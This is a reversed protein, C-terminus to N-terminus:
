GMHALSKRFRVLAALASLFNKENFALNEQALGMLADALESAPRGYVTADYGAEALAAKAARVDDEAIDAFMSELEDLSPELIFLGKVLMAAACVFPAPMSDIVEINIRNTLTVDNFFSALASEAQDPTMAQEAYAAGFSEDTAIWDADGDAAPKMIAPADLVYAAYDAFSFDDDLVGPVIGSRAPDGENMLAMRMVAHPSREKEYVRVDDCILALIPAAITILRLKRLADAESSYDLSIRTQAGVHMLNACDPSFAALYDHLIRSQEDRLAVDAASATPHYGENILRKGKEDAISSGLRDFQEFDMRVEGPMDYPGGVFVVQGGPGVKTDVIGAAIKFRIDETDRMDKPSVGGIRDCLWAADAEDGEALPSLDANVLHHGLEVYVCRDKDEPRFGSKFVSELAAINDTRAPQDTAEHAM